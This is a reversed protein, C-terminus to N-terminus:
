IQSHITLLNRIGCQLLKGLPYTKLALGREKERGRSCNQHKEHFKWMVYKRTNLFTESKWTKEAERERRTERVAYLGQDCASGGM